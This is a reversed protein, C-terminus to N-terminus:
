DDWTRMLQRLQPEFQVALSQAQDAERLLGEVAEGLARLLENRELSTAFTGRFADHVDSPLDDFGRGFGHHKQPRRFADCAESPRDAVRYRHRCRRAGRSAIGGYVM